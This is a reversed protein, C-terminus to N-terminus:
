QLKQQNKALSEDNEELKEMFTHLYKRGFKDQVLGLFTEAFGFKKSIEFVALGVIYSLSTSFKSELMLDAGKDLLLNLMQIARATTFSPNKVMLLALMELPTSLSDDDHDVITTCFANVASPDMAILLELIRLPAAHFIARHLFTENAHLKINVLRMELGQVQNLQLLIQLSEQSIFKGNVESFALDMTNSARKGDGDDTRLRAGAAIAIRLLEAQHPSAHRAAVSDLVNFIREDDESVVLSFEANIDAGHRLLLKFIEPHRVLHLPTVNKMKHGDDNGIVVRKNVDIGEWNLLAHLSPLLNPPVDDMHLTTFSNILCVLPTDGKFGIENVDVQGTHLLALIVNTNPFIISSTSDKSASFTCAEALVGQPFKVKKEVMLDIVFRILDDLKDCVATSANSCRCRLLHVLPSSADSVASSLLSSSLGFMKAFARTPTSLFNELNLGNELGVRALDPDFTEVTVTFSGSERSGGFLGLTFVRSAENEREGLNEISMLRERTKQLLQQHKRKANEKQEVITKVLKRNKVVEADSKAGEPDLEFYKEYCEHSDEYNEIKMGATARRMWGRPWEPRLLSAMCGDDYAEQCKELNYYCLSRNSFIAAAAEVSPDLDIAATYIVLAEEFKNNQMFENGILKLEDQSKKNNENEFNKKFYSLYKEKTFKKSPDLEYCKQFNIFAEEINNEEEAAVALKFHNSFM